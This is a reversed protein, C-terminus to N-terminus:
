CDNMIMIMMMVVMIITMMMMMNDNNDKRVKNQMNINAGKEVLTRVVSDEGWYSAV